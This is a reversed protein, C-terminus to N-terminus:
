VIGHKSKLELPSKARGLKSLKGDAVEYLFYYDRELKSTIVYKINHKGDFITEWVIETKPPSTKSGAM